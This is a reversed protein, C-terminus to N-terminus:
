FPEFFETTQSAGIQNVGFRTETTCNKARNGFTVTAFKEVIMIVNPNPVLTPGVRLMAEALSRNAILSTGITNILLNGSTAVDTKSGGLEGIEALGGTGVKSKNFLM